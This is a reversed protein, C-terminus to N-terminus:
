KKLRHPFPVPPEYPKFPPPSEKKKNNDQKTEKEEVQGEENEKEVEKGEETTLTPASRKPPQM